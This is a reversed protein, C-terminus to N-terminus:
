RFLNFGGLAALLVVGLAAQLLLPPGLHSWVTPVRPHLLQATTINVIRVIKPPLRPDKQARVSFQIDDGPHLASQPLHGHLEVERVTGDALRVRVPTVLFEPGERLQKFSRRGGSGGAGSRLLAVVFLWALRVVLAPTLVALLVPQRIGLPRPYSELLRVVRGDFSASTGRDPRGLGRGGYESPGPGGAEM